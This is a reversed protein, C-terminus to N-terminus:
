FVGSRHWRRWSMQQRLKRRARQLFFAPHNAVQWPRVTTWEQLALWEPLTEVDEITTRAIEQCQEFKEYGAAGKSYARVAEELAHVAIARLSTRLLEKAQSLDKAKGSFLTRFADRRGLLDQILDVERHSLSEAHERHWAQDAGHIYAVDSFASIRLWMEMDHTHALPRQGGVIDVVSKRMLVEPSTIVNLGDRCRDTLWTRGPWLTWTTPEMRAPQRTVGSFHLPHGYVLGVSRFHQAVAVSRELSGPTLLDDADLRVLFEGRAVALGDNFTTVPGANKEHVLVRVRNDAAALESAVEMSDDTSADDVIVIDVSVGRQALASHVAGPLYRAYNFNPIVVTVTANPSMLPRANVSLIRDLGFADTHDVTRAKLELELTRVMKTTTGSEFHM